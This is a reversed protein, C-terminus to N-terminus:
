FCDYYDGVMGAVTAVPMERLLIMLYAEFLQTFGSDPRAWAVEVRKVGCGRPCQVRPVRAHLYTGYQFFNLHRWTDESTDYPKAGEAGCSPCPFCAGRQFDLYLDLRGREVSFEAVKVYWPPTIGLALGFLSEPEM